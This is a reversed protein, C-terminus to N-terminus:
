GPLITEAHIRPEYRPSNPRQHQDQGDAKPGFCPQRNGGRVSSARATMASGHAGILRCDRGFPLGGRRGGPRVLVRIGHGTARCLWFSKRAAASFHRTTRHAVHWDPRQCEQHYGTGGQRLLQTGVARYSSDKRFRLRLRRTRRGEGIGRLKDPRDRFLFGVEPNLAGKGENTTMGLPAAYGCLRPVQLKSTRPNEAGPSFARPKKKACGFDQPRYSISLM